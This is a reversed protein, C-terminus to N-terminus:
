KSELQGSDEAKKRSKNDDQEKQYYVSDMLKTADLAAPKALKQDNEDADLGGTGSLDIPDQEEKYDVQNM